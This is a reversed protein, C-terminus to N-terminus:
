LNAQGLDVLSISGKYIGAPTYTHIYDANDSLRLQLLNGINTLLQTRQGATLTVAADIRPARASLWTSAAEGAVDPATDDSRAPSNIILLDFPRSKRPDTEAPIQWEVQARLIFDTDDGDAADILDQLQTSNALTALTYTTEGTTHAWASDLLITAGGLAQPAKCVLRGTTGSALEYAEADANLFTLDLTLLTGLIAEVQPPSILKGTAHQLTLPIADM